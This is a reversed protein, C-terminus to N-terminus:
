LGLAREILGISARGPHHRHSQSSSASNSAGVFLRRALDGFRLSRSGRSDRHIASHPDFSCARAYRGTRRACSSIVSRWRSGVSGRVAGLGSSCQSGRKRLHDFIRKYSSCFCQVFWSGGSVISGRAAFQGYDRVDRSRSNGGLVIAYADAVSAAGDDDDEIQREEKLELEVVM